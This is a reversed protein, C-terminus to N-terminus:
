GDIQCRVQRRKEGRRLGSAMTTPAEKSADQGEENKKLLAEGVEVVVPVNGRHGGIAAVGPLDM